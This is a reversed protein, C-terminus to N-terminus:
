VMRENATEKTLAVEYILGNELYSISGDCYPLKDLQGCVVFDKYKKHNVFVGKQKFNMNLLKLGKINVPITAIEQGEYLDGERNRAYLGYNVNLDSFFIAGRKESVDLEQGTKFGEKKIKDAIEKGTTHYVIKDKDYVVFPEDSHDLFQTFNKM